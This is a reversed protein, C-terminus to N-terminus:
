PERILAGVTGGPLEKYLLGRFHQFGKKMGWLHNHCYSGLLPLASPLPCAKQWVTGQEKELHDSPPIKSPGLERGGLLQDM